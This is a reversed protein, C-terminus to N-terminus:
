EFNKLEVLGHMRGDSHDLRNKFIKFYRDDQQAYSRWVAYAMLDALQILRSAQSDLFLPVEALNTIRGWRHGVQRYLSAQGQIAKEYGSKDLVILGRQTDGQHYLRKLFLDFRSALQEFAVAMSQKNNIAPPVVCAFVRNKPHTKNIAELADALAAHRMEAPFQRWFKRGGHMWNGHLEVSQPEAAHFRAAVEDLHKSIFYAQREFCAFGALVFFGANNVSGSEDLYLLYM